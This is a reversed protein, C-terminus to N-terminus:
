ADKEIVSQLPHKNQHAYTNVFHMKTEATEFNFVGAIGRGEKHVQLMINEAEERSKQFFKQLILTVFEMPTYDDNLLLVKYFSPEKTKVRELVQTSSNDDTQSDNKQSMVSSYCIKASTYRFYVARGVALRFVASRSVQIVSSVSFLILKIKIENFDSQNKSVQTQM